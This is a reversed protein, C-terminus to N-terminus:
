RVIPYGAKEWAKYSGLVIHYNSYGERELISAIITARLGVACHIYIPTDRPIEDLRALVHGTYIHHADALHGEEWEEWSRVDLIMIDKGSDVVTKFEQISILPTSQVPLANTYWSLMGKTLYGLVNDFGIRSLSLRAQQLDEPKELILILPTTYELFWGAFSSLGGLWISLANKIHVSAYAPPQRTDVIMAGTKRANIAQAPTFCVPHQISHYFPAYGLNYEEMKKFYPPHTHKENGKLSIFEDRSLSLQSNLRKEIGITSPDREKIGSGCVSGTGHAPCIIVEDGLPLIKQHISDFLKASVLPQQEPGYFDTRGTDGAFLADGTFIMLPQSPDDEGFAIFSYSGLTHGPTQIAKIHCEGFDFLPEKQLNHGYAFQFESGHYIEVEPYLHKLELSGIIYDENRHTEFIYKPTFGEEIFIELYDQIDRRPDIIVCETLSGLIYSFHSIGPTIIRKFYM